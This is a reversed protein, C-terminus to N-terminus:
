VGRKKGWIHSHIRPSFRFGNSKCIEVLENERPRLESCTTGAAMLFINHLKLPVSFSNNFESIINTIWNLNKGDYVIKLYFDNKNYIFYYLATLEKIKTLPKPSVIYHTFHSMWDDLYGPILGPNRRSNKPLSGNTEIDIHNIGNNYLIKILKMLPIAQLTPEGGTIVVMDVPPYKNKLIMIDKAVQVVPLKEGGERAYQTDCYQIKGNVKWSCNFNCGALRLFIAPLGACPGEGQISCFIESVDLTEEKKM